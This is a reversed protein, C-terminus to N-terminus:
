FGNRLLEAKAYRSYVVLRQCRQNLRIEKRKSSYSVWKIPFGGTRNRALFALCPFVCYFSAARRCPVRTFYNYKYGRMCYLGHDHVMRVLPLRSDLLAEMVELNDLNHVYILDPQFERVVGNAIKGNAADPIVFRSGCTSRWEDESKGTGPGHLLGVEHGRHQLERASLHINAEAGGQAGLHQHVFLLKMVPDARSEDM